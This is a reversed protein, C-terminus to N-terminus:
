LLSFREIEKGSPTGHICTAEQMQSMFFKLAPDKEVGARWGSLFDPGDFRGLVTVLLLSTNPPSAMRHLKFRELVEAVFMGTHSPTDMNLAIMIAEAPGDPGEVSVTKVDKIENM